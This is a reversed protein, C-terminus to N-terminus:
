CGPGAPGPHEPGHPIYIGRGERLFQAMHQDGFARRAELRNHRACLLRLNEPASTGGRAFPVIHDIQLGRTAGCRRGGHSVYTCRGGDRMYVEDRVRRPIHRSRAAAPKGRAGAQRASAQARRGPAELGEDDAGDGAGPLRQTVGRTRRRERRERRRARAEPSHREIYEDLLIEFLREFELRGHERASLLSRV